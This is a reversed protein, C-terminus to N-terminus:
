ILRDLIWSCVYLFMYKNLKAYNNLSVIEFKFKLHFWDKLVIFTRIKKLFWVKIDIKNM